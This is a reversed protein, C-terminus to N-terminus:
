KMLLLLGQSIMEELIAICDQIIEEKPHAGREEEALENYLEDIIDGIKSKKAHDFLYGATENLIHTNQTEENFIIIENEVGDVILKENRVVVDELKM